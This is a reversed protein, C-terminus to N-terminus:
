KSKGKKKFKEWFPPKDDIEFTIVIAGFISTFLPIWWMRFIESWPLPGMFRISFFHPIVTGMFFIACFTIAFRIIRTKNKIKM